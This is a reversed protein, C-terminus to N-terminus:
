TPPNAELIEKIIELDEFVDDCGRAVFHQRAEQSLGTLYRARHSQEELFEYAAILDEDHFRASLNSVFRKRVKHPSESAKSVIRLRSQDVVKYAEVYHIAAYFCMTVAWDPYEARSGHAAESNHEAQQLHLSPHAVTRRM